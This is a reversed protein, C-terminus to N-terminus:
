HIPREVFHIGGWGGEGWSRSFGPPFSTWRSICSLSKNVHFLSFTGLGGSNNQYKSLPTTQQTKRRRATGYSLRLYVVISIFSDDINSNHTHTHTHTHTHAEETSWDHASSLQQGIVFCCKEWLTLHNKNQSWYCELQCTFVFHKNSLQDFM